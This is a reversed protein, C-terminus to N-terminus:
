LRILPIGSRALMRNVGLKGGILWHGVFGMIVPFLGAQLEQWRWSGNLPNYGTMIKTFHAAGGSLGHYTIQPITSTIGPLFGAVVLLPITFKRGSRRRKVNRAL